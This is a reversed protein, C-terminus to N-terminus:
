LEGGVTLELGSKHNPNRRLYTPRHQLVPMLELYCASSAEIICGELHWTKHCRQSSQIIMRRRVKGLGDM